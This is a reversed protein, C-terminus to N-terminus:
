PQQERKYDWLGILITLTTFFIAKSVSGGVPPSGAAQNTFFGALAGLTGLLLKLPISPFRRRYARRFIIRHFANASDSALIKIPRADRQSADKSAELYVEDGMDSLYDVFSDWGEDDFDGKRSTDFPVLGSHGLSQRLWKRIRDIM